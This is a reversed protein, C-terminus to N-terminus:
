GGQEMLYDTSAQNMRKSRIAEKGDQYGRDEMDKLRSNVRIGQTRTEKWGQSMVEYEDKVSQPIVLMLAQDRKETDM